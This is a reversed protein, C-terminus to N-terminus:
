APLHAQALQRAIENMAAETSFPVPIFSSLDDPMQSTDERLTQLFSSNIRFRFLHRDVFDGMGAAAALLGLPVPVVASNSHQADRYMRVYDCFPVPAGDSISARRGAYSDFHGLIHAAAATVNDIFVVSKSTTVAGFPLPLHRQTLASLQAPNGPAHAGYIMAPRLISWVGDPLSGAVLDELEAECRGYATSRFHASLSSIHLFRPIRNRRVVDLVQETLPKETTSFREPSFREHALGTCNIVGDFDLDDAQLFSGLKLTTVDRNGPTRVAGMVHYGKAQLHQAIAGGVYSSLGLVAIKM